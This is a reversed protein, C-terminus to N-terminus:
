NFDYQEVWTNNVWQAFNYDNWSSPIPYRSATELRCLNIFESLEVNSTERNFTFDASDGAPTFAIIGVHTKM